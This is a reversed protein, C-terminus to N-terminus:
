VNHGRGDQIADLIVFELDKIVAIVILLVSELVTKVLIDMKATKIVRKVRMGRGVGRYALGM